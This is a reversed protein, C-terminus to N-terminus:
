EGGGAQELRAREPQPGLQGHGAGLHGARLRLRPQGAGGRDWIQADEDGSHVREAVRGSLGVEDESAELDVQRDEAAALRLRPDRRRLGLQDRRLFRLPGRPVPDGRFHGLRMRVQEGLLALDGEVM